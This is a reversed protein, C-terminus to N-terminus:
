SELDSKVDGYVQEVIPEFAEFDAILKEILAVENEFTKGSAVLPQVQSLAALDLTVNTGGSAAAAVLAPWLTKSAVLFAAFDKGGTTVIAEADGVLELVGAKLKPEAVIADRLAHELAVCEKPVFEVVKVLDKGVTELKDAM